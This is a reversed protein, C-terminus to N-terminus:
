ASLKRKITRFASSAEPHKLILLGAVYTSTSVVITGAIGLGLLLRGQNPDDLAMLDVCLWVAGFLLGTAMVCRLLSSLAAAHVIRFGRRQLIFILIGVTLFAGISGSLAIGGHDMPKSLVICLVIHVVLVFAAVLMPTKLDKQAYFVQMVNRSLAIPFLGAAHFILAWYVLAASEVGFEGYQFLLRIIAPGLLILGVTAPLTVLALLNGTFTLTKAASQSQDGEDSIQASLTPLIVTTISVVFVGLVLEQLRVSYQLASIRGEELGSAIIQSVFVQIQYIGGAL